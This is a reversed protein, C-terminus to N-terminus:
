RKAKALKIFASRYVKIVKAEEQGAEEYKQAATFYAEIAEAKKTTKDLAQAKGMYLAYFDGMALGKDFTAIAADYEEAKRQKNGLSYATRMGNTKALELVQMSTSDGEEAQEAKAIAQEFLSLANAFDKGKMLEVGENYLDAASKEEQAQLSLTGGLFFLMLVYSLRKMM